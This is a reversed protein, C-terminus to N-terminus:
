LDKNPSHLADIKKVGDFIFPLMISVLSLIKNHEKGQNYHKVRQIQGMFHAVQRLNEYAKKESGYLDVSGHEIKELFTIISNLKLAFEELSFSIDNQTKKLLINDSGTIRVPQEAKELDHLAISEVKSSGLKIVPISNMNGM